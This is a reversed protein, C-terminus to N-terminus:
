KRYGIYKLHNKLWSPERYQDNGIKVDELREFYKELVAM